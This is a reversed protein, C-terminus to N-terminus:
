NAAGAPDGAESRWRALNHRTTLTDPHDPGVQITITPLWAAWQDRNDATLGTPAGGPLLQTLVRHLRNVHQTRTAVLDDRHEVVARLAELTEDLFAPQAGHGTLAAVGVSTADADDPSL